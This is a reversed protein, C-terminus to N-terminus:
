NINNAFFKIPTNVDPVIYRLLVALFTVVVISIPDVVLQSLNSPSMLTTRGYSHFLTFPLHSRM